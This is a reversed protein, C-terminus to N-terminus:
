CSSPSNTFPPPYVPELEVQNPSLLLHALAFQDDVDNYTDTDLVVRVRHRSNPDVKVSTSSMVSPLNEGNSRSLALMRFLVARSQAVPPWRGTNKTWFIIWTSVCVSKAAM